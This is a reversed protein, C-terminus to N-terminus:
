VLYRIVVCPHGHCCRHVLFLNVARVLLTAFVVRALPCSESAIKKSFRVATFSLCIVNGGLTSPEVSSFPKFLRASVLRTNNAVLGRPEARKLIHPLPTKFNCGTNSVSPLLRGKCFYDNGSNRRVTKSYGAFIRRCVVRGGRQRRCPLVIRVATTNRTVTVTKKVPEPGTTLRYSCLGPRGFNPSEGWYVFAHM